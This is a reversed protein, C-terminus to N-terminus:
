NIEVYESSGLCARKLLIVDLLKENGETNIQTTNAWESAIKLYDEVKTTNVLVKINDCGLFANKEISKISRPIYMRFIYGLNNVMEGLSSFANEKISTVKIGYITENIIVDYKADGVYDVIALEGNEYEYKVGYVDVFDWWVATFHYNGETGKPVKINGYYKKGNQDVWHSFINEDKVPAQIIFDESESNYGFVVNETTHSGGQLDYTIEFEAFDWKAVLRADTKGIWKGETPVRQEGYYWGLFQYGTRRPTPLAYFEGVVVEMETTYMEGGNADFTVTYKESGCACLLIGLTLIIFLFLFAKKMICNKSRLNELMYIICINIYKTLNLLFIPRFNARNIIFITKVPM